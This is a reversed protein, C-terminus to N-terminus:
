CSTQVIEDLYLVELWRNCFSVLLVIRKHKEQYGIRNDWEKPNTIGLRELYDSM